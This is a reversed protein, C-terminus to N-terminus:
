KRNREDKEEWNIPKHSHLNVSEELCEYCPEENEPTKEHECKPCYIDYRVEKYDNCQM